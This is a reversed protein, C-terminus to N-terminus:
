AVTIAESARGAESTAPGADARLGAAALAAQARQLTALDAAELTLTLAADGDAYALSQVSVSGSLPALAASARALLPLFRAPTAGGSPLLALVSDAFDGDTSTGPLVAQVLLAADARAKTAMRHLALTDAAAIAGHALLGAAGIIGLRRLLPSVRRAAHAFEGQRLDLGFRVAPLPALLEMPAVVDVPLPEGLSACPLKGGAAWVAEFQAVPVAFGTGTDTLVCVRDGARNVSWSGPAPPPLALADPVLAADPMGAADLLVLWGAMMERAVVGAVHVRPAIERGLAVHVAALPQAIRDEVAFPLAAARATRSALPLDVVLMLVAENPVLVTAPGDADVLTLRDGDLSWLGAPARLPDALAM